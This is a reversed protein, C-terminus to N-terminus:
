NASAWFILQGTKIGSAGDYGTPISLTLNQDQNQGSGVAAYFKQWTKGNIKLNDLFLPNGTVAGNISLNVTGTNSITIQKAINDGPKINGFDLSSANLTFSLTNHNTNEGLVQSNDLNATLNVASTSPDGIQLLVQNSRIYGTKGAFVKYYGDPASLSANGTSDTASNQAGYNVTAASLAQWSGNNYYEVKAPSNQGTSIKTQPLALRTVNWGYDGFYWIVEDGTKLTYDAAGIDPSTNNVLYMWGSQGVAQDANIKDLYKGFSAQQIHFTFGCQSSANEIINLATPGQAKGSCIQESSGEIRFDFSPLTTAKTPMLPLSKGALAISAYATTIPSFSDEALDNQFKFFGSTDQNAELYTFPTKGDKAWSEQSINLANLAWLAWSTSSSDSDSGYPSKPDYTFGGDSNQALKLYDLAKVIIPDSATLGLSSLAVIATATTNSDSASTLSFAWGGDSNQHSLLFNKSDLIVADDNGLGSAKLALIGFIDDNLISPDGLQSATHFNKLSTIYNQGYFDKPDKGLASIALIPTELDLASAGSINKLNDDSVPVSGLAVQALISWASSSHSQLYSLATPKNYSAVSVLPSFTLSIIVMVLLLLFSKKKQNHM